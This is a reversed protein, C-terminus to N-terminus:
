RNARFPTVGVAPEPGENVREWESRWVTKRELISFMLVHSFLLFFLFFLLFRYLHVLWWWRL